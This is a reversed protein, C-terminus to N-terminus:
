GENRTEMSELHKESWRLSAMEEEMIRIRELLGRKMRDEDTSVLGATTMARLTDAETKSKAWGIEADKLRLRVAELESRGAKLEARAESLETEYQRIQVSARQSGEDTDAARSTATQLDSQAQDRSLVLEDLRAQMEVLEGDKHEVMSTQTLLRDAHERLELEAREKAETANAEVQELRASKLTLEETLQALRRDQETQAALIATMQGELEMRRERDLRAVERESSAGPVAIKAPFDAPGEGDDGKEPRGNVGMSQSPLGNLSPNQDRTIQSSTPRSSEELTTKPVPSAGHAVYADSSSPTSHQPQKQTSPGASSEQTLQSTQESPEAVNHDTNRTPYEIHVANEFKTQSQFSLLFIRVQTSFTFLILKTGGHSQRRYEELCLSGNGMLLWPM